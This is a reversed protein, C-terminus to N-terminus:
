SDSRLSALEAGLDEAPYDVLPIGHNHCEAAFAYRDVEAFEAAAGASIEGSRFMLLAAYLKIRQAFEGPSRDLLYQEPVNLTVQM